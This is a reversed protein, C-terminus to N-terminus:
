PEHLFHTTEIGGCERFSKRDQFERHVNFGLFPVLVRVRLLGENNRVGRGSKKQVQTFSHPLLISGAAM